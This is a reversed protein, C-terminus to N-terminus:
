KKEARGNDASISVSAIVVFRTGSDIQQRRISEGEM